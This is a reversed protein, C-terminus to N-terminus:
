KHLNGWYDDIADTSEFVTPCFGLPKWKWITKHPVLLVARAFSQKAEDFRAFDSQIMGLSYHLDVDHPHLRIAKQLAEISEAFFQRKALAALDDFDANPFCHECDKSHAMATRRAARSIERIM